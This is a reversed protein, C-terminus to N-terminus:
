NRAVCSNRRGLEVAADFESITSTTHQQGMRLKSPTVVPPEGAPYELFYYCPCSHLSTFAKKKIKVTRM